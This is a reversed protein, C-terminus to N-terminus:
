PQESIEARIDERAKRARAIGDVYQEDNHDDEDNQLQQPNGLEASTFYSLCGPLTAEGYCQLSPASEMGLGSFKMFVHSSTVIFFGM